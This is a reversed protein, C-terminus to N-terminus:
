YTMLMSYSHLVVVCCWLNLAKKLLTMTSPPHNLTDRISDQSHTPKAMSILPLGFNAIQTFQSVSFHTLCSLWRSGNHTLRSLITYPKPVNPARAHVAANVAKLDQVFRWETPKGINTVRHSFFIPTRVLSNPFPVIVGAQLLFDLTCSRQILLQSGILSRNM